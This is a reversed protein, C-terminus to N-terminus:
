EKEKKREQEIYALQIAVIHKCFGPITRNAQCPCKTQTAEYNRYADLDVSVEYFPQENGAVKGNLFVIGNEVDQDVLLEEVGGDRLLNKVKRLAASTANKKITEETLAMGESREECM